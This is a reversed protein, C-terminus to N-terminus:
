NVVCLSLVILHLCIELTGRDVYRSLGKPFPGSTASVPKIQLCLFLSNVVFARYIILELLMM